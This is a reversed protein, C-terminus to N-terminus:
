TRFISSENQKEELCNERQKISEIAKKQICDSMSKIKMEEKMKEFICPEFIAATHNCYICMGKAYYLCIQSYDSM